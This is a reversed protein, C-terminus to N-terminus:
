SQNSIVLFSPDKDETLKKNHNIEKRNISFAIKILIFLKKFRFTILNKLADKLIIKYFINTNENFPNSITVILMRKYKKEYDKFYPNNSNFIRDHFIFSNTIVGIKFSHYKVRECYNFDEGYHFFSPSFGGVDLLCKRTILWAAANIFPVEYFQKVNKNITLDSFYACHDPGIYQSFNKDLEDGKGNLHIPSLVGFQPNSKSILILNEITNSEIWADQNLLFVFDAEEQLSISLGQNNAKGFGENEANLILRVTPYNYRITDRSGDTSGNDIVIIDLKIKSEFLSNLCKELWSAPNYTVIIVKIIM